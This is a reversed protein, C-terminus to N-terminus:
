GSLMQVDATEGNDAFIGVVVRNIGGPYTKDLPLVVYWYPVLALSNGRPHPFLEIYVPAGNSSFGSTKEGDIDWTLTKIYDRAAAVAQQENLNLETSGVTFFFYGDMLSLLIRGQFVMRLCKANFEIGNETYMWFFEASEGKITIQLKMNGATVVTNGTQNVTDLLRSMEDIYEDGSYTKYADITNKATQLIGIGNVQAKTYLQSDYNLRLEYFSFHNDRFRFEADLTSQGSALSYKIVEEAVDIDNRHQLTNDLLKVVYKSTDIQAVDQLLGVAKNTNVGWALLQQNQAEIRSKDGSLQNITIFQLAIFAAFLIITVLLVAFITKWKFTLKIHRKPEIEPAEEVGKMASVTATGFSSLKYRGNEMKYILEGLTELHYTLNSSSVGIHDAIEMFTMPKDNLMRLIKRRAPHKLSTFMISYIEEESGDM